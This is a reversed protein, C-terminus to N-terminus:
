NLKAPQGNTSFVNTNTSFNNQYVQGDGGKRVVVFGSNGYPKANANIVTQPSTADWNATSLFIAGSDEVDGVKYVNFAITAQSFSADPSRGPATLVKKLDNATLYGNTLASTWTAINSSVTNSSAPWGGPQGATFNDLDLSQTAIHLQRGNSLTGTQQGKVLAKSVAPIALGALIGIISIVVLLEILTFASPRKIKM